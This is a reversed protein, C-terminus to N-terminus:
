TTEFIWVSFDRYVIDPVNIPSAGEDFVLVKFLIAKAKAALGIPEFCRKAIATQLKGSNHSRESWIEVVELSEDPIVVLQDCTLM